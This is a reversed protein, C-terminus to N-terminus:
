EITKQDARVGLLETETLRLVEFSEGETLLSESFLDRVRELLARSDEDAISRLINEFKETM